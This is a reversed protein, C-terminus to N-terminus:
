CNPPAHRWKEHRFHAADTGHTDPFVVQAGTPQKAIYLHALILEPWFVADTKVDCYQIRNDPLPEVQQRRPDDISFCASTCEPLKVRSKRNIGSDAPTRPLISTTRRVRMRGLLM